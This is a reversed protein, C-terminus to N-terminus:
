PFLRAPLGISRASTPYVMIPTPGSADAAPIWFPSERMFISLFGKLHKDSKYTGIQRACAPSGIINWTERSVEDPMLTMSAATVKPGFSGFGTVSRSQIWLRTTLMDIGITQRSTPN